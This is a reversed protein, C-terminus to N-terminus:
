LEFTSTLFDDASVASRGFGGLKEDPFDGLNETVIHEAGARITAVL